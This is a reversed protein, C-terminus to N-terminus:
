EIVIVDDDDDDAAAAARTIADYAVRHAPVRHLGCATSHSPIKEKTVWDLTESDFTYSTFRGSRYFTFCSACRAGM